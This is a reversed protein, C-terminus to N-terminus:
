IFDVQRVMPPFYFNGFTCLTEIDFQKRAGCKLCSRYSIKEHSFPRSMEEHWCGFFKGIFGVREGFVRRDVETKNLVFRNSLTKFGNQISSTSM